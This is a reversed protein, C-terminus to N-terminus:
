AARYRLVPNDQDQFDDLNAIELQGRRALFEVHAGAEEYALIRGYHTQEGFLALTIERVTRPEAACIARVKELRARHFAEIEVIRQALQPMPEEHGGLALDIGGIRRVKELADFYHDLGTSATISEPAQHPTIRALVHDATLLVNDIQLCVQGPCHGPAHHVVAGCVVAGDTLVRDVAVPKFHSKGHLYMRELEAREEAGVGAAALFQRLALAAVVLREDFRTLVRADLEHVAVRAGRQKWLGAGGYHDVHGHTVVLDDVHDLAGVLGHIRDLVAAARAFDDRSSALQSGADVLLAHGAGDLVLYVNNVHDPFTEIPLLYIRRGGASDFRAVGCAGHEDVYGAIPRAGAAVDALAAVRPAAAPPMLPELATRVEAASVPSRRVLVTEEVTALLRRFAHQQARGVSM